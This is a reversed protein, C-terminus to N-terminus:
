ARRLVVPRFYFGAHREVGLVVQRCYVLELYATVRELLDRDSYLSERLPQQCVRAPIGLPV